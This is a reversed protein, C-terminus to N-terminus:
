VNMLPKGALQDCPNTASLVPSLVLSLRREIVQLIADATENQMIASWRRNCIVRFNRNPWFFRVILNLRIDARTASFHRNLNVYKESRRISKPSPM